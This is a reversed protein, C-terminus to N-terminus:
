ITFRDTVSDDVPATFGGRDFQYATRHKTVCYELIPAGETASWDRRDIRPIGRLHDEALRKPISVRLDSADQLLDYGNADANTFADGIRRTLAQEADTVAVLVDVTEYDEQILSKEGLTAAKFQEVLTVFSESGYNREQVAEFYAPVATRTLHTEAIDDMSPLTRTLVDAIM